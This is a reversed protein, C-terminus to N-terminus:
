ALSYFQRLKSQAFYVANQAESLRGKGYGIGSIKWNSDFRPDDFRHVEICSIDECGQRARVEDLLLVELKEKPLRTLGM